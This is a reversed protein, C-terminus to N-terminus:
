IIEVTASNAGEFLPCTRQSSRRWLDWVGVGIREFAGAKHSSKALVLFRTAPGMKLDISMWSFLRFCYYHEDREHHVYKDLKVEMGQMNSSQVYPAKGNRDNVLEVPTFAGKLVIAGETVASMPDEPLERQCSVKKVECMDVVKPEYSWLYLPMLSKYAIPIGASAWSWSPIRYGVEKRDEVGSKSAKFGEEDLPAIQWTLDFHLERKWLGAVYKDPSGDEQQINDQVMKALASIARLKDHKKSLSRHSYDSVLVRWKHYPLKCPWRLRRELIDEEVWPLAANPTNIKLSAGLKGYNTSTRKPIQPAVVHGCECIKRCLCEWTMENGNYCLRRNPLLSEQACLGRQDLSFRESRVPTRFEGSRIFLEVPLTGKQAGSTSRFLQQRSPHGFRQKGLFRSKCSNPEMPAITLHSNRYIDHMM